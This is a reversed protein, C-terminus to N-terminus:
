IQKSFYCWSCMDNTKVASSLRTTLQGLAIGSSDCIKSDLFAPPISGSSSVRSYVIGASWLLRSAHVDFLDFLWLIADHNANVVCMAAHTLSMRSPLARPTQSLSWDVFCWQTRLTLIMLPLMMKTITMVHRLHHHQNPTQGRARAPPIHCILFRDLWLTARRNKTKTSRAQSFVHCQSFRGFGRIVKPDKRENNGHFEFLSPQSDTVRQHREKKHERLDCHYREVRLDKECGYTM